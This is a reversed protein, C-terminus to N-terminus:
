GNIVESYKKKLIEQSKLFRKKSDEIYKLEKESIEIETGANPHVSFFNDAFFDNGNKVGQYIGKKIVVKIKSM